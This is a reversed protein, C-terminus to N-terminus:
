DCHTKALTTVSTTRVKRPLFPVPIRRKKVPRPHLAASGVSRSASPSLAHSTFSRALSSCLHLTALLLVPRLVFMKSSRPLNALLPTDLDLLSFLKRSRPLTSPPHFLKFRTSRRRLSGKHVKESSPTSLLLVFQARHGMFSMARKASQLRPSSDVGVAAWLATSLAPGPGSSFLGLWCPNSVPRPTLPKNTLSSKVLGRVDRPPPSAPPHAIHSSSCLLVTSIIM